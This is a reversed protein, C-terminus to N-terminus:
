IARVTDNYGGFTWQHTTKFPVCDELKLFGDEDPAMCKQTGGHVLEGQLSLLFNEYKVILKCKIAPNLFNEMSNQVGHLVISHFSRIKFTFNSTAHIVRVISVM